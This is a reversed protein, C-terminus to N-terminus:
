NRQAVRIRRASEWVREFLYLQMRAYDPADTRLAVVGEARARTSADPVLLAIVTRADMIHLGMLLDTDITRVEIPADALERQILAENDTHERTVLRVSVGDRARRRLAPLIGLTHLMPLAGPHNFLTVIEATSADIARQLEATVVRRERLLDFHTDPPTHAPRTELAQLQKTLDPEAGQIADTLSQARRRLQEFVVPAANAVFIRPRTLGSTLFGQNALLELARYTRPRSLACSQALDGARSPGAGHLRVYVLAEDRGLGLEELRTAIEDADAHRTTAAM